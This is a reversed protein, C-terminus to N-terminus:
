NRALFAVRFLLVTIVFTVILALPMVGQFRTLALWLGVFVVVIKVAEARLMTAVAAVASSKEGAGLMLAYALTSAVTVGGGMAASWAANSGSWFAAVLACALSALAQWCLVTRIPRSALAAFMETRPRSRRGRTAPPPPPTKVDRM